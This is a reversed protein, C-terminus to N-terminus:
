GHITHIPPDEKEHSLQIRKSPYGIVNTYEGISEGTSPLKLQKWMKAKTFLAAIFTQAHIM